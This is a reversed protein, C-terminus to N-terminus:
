PTKERVPSSARSKKVPPEEFLVSQKPKMSKDTKDTRSLWRLHSRSQNSAVDPMQTSLHQSEQSRKRDTNASELSNENDLVKDKRTAKGSTRKKHLPSGKTPRSVAYSSPLTEDLKMNYPSQALKM